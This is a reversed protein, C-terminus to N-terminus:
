PEEEDSNYRADTESDSSDISDIPVPPAIVAPDEVEKIWYTKLVDMTPYDGAEVGHRRDKNKDERGRKRPQFHIRLLHAAANNYVRYVKQTQCAKCNALRREDSSYDICIYGKRSPAHAYAIHRDLEHSGDFYEPREQCFQCKFKSHPPRVDPNTTIAENSMISNDHPRSNANQEISKEPMSENRTKAEEGHVNQVHEEMSLTSVRTASHAAEGAAFHVASSSQTSRTSEQQAVEIFNPQNELPSSPPTHYEV